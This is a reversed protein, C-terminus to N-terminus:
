NMQIKQCDEAADAAFDGLSADPSPQHNVSLATRSLVRHASAASMLFRQVGAGFISRALIIACSLVTDVLIHDPLLNPTPRKPGNM